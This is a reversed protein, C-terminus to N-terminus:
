KTAPKTEAPKAEAKKTEDKKEADIAAAASSAADFLSVPKRAPDYRKVMDIMRTVRSEALTDDKIGAKIAELAKVAEDKKGLLATCRAEGMKATLLLYSKANVENAAFAAFAAKAEEYKALGELAYARGVSAIDTLAPDSKKVLADYVDLADQYREADYYSKALRLKIAVGPKTSGYSASAAELEDTSFSNVLAANAKADRSRLWNRGAYFGAVVVGAVLLMTVTSKGEKVWWDWLPILEPAKKVFDPLEPEPLKNEESM